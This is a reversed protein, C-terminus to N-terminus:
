MSSAVLPAIGLFLGCIFLAAGCVRNILPLRGQELVPNMLSATAILIPSWMLSGLFVGLAFLRIDDLDIRLRSGSAASLVASIALIPVPNSLMLSITALFADAASRAHGQRPRKGLPTTFLRIGVVVLVAGGCLQLWFKTQSLAGAIVSMGFGAMLSYCADMVAAGLISFFGALRGDTLTRQICLIGVPGLPACLLFGVALGKFLFENEM